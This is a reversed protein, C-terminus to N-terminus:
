IQCSLCFPKSPPPSKTILPSFANKRKEPPKCKAHEEIQTKTFLPLHRIAVAGGFLILCLWLKRFRVTSKKRREDTRAAHFAAQAAKAQKNILYSSVVTVCVALILAVWQNPVFVVTITLAACFVLAICLGVLFAVGLTYNTREIDGILPLTPLLIMALPFAGMRLAELFALLALYIVETTLGSVKALINNLTSDNTVNTMWNCDLFANELDILNAVHEDFSGICFGATLLLGIVWAISIAVSEKPETKPAETPPQQPAETPPQQPAETPPQQPAETPPQQPVKLQTAKKRPTNRRRRSV